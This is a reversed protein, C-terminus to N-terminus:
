FGNGCMGAKGVFIAPVAQTDVPGIVRVNVAYQSLNSSLTSSRATSSTCSDHQLVVAFFSQTWRTEWKGSIHKALIGRLRLEKAILLM